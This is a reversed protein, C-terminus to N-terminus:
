TTDESRKGHRKLREDECTIFGPEDCHRFFHELGRQTDEADTKTGYPGCPECDPIRTVWYGDAKKAVKMKTEIM